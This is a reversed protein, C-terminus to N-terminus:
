YTDSAVLRRAAHDVLDVLRDAAESAADADTSEVMVRVLPETGSPRVLVRGNSGLEADVDRVRSWFATDGNLAEPHAVAVNRLVQPFRTMVAALESLPRDRRTMTDLLFIGTLTGDGTTAHDAFIVHGSQEGGLSLNRQELVDLVNRDGVPTEVVSIHYPELARRLGLNSMVSTVISDGRLLHRDHLDLAAIALMQDGDVLEGRQDVAIVRDADGDLALGVDAGAVLVAERLDDPHTSGCAENINSGNPAANLVDVEAGLARLAAPAVRFAAGNGCDVVVHIGHLQRGQLSDVLYAVYEDHATRHESAVGVGSGEPGPDPQGMALERLEHEIAIELPEPIKRGGQALLKVGNDDFPNHSASIVAGSAGRERALYAVGPTPLVGALVVDAGEACIGSVLAGELMPGSRRTDRGVVFPEDAGLVRVAARGIATVLEVTLERNAVGRVGDTGFRLTM